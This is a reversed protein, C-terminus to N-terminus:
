EALYKRELVKLEDFGIFEFYEDLTFMNQIGEDTGEKMLTKLAAYGNYAIVNFPVM